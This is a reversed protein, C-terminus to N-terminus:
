AGLLDLAVGEETSNVEVAQAANARRELRTEGGVNVCGVERSVLDVLRVVGGDELLLRHLLTTGSGSFLRKLLAQREESIGELTEVVVSASCCNLTGSKLITALFAVDTAHMPCSRLM